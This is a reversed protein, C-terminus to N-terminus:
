NEINIKEREGGISKRTLCDTKLVEHVQGQELFGRLRYSNKQAWCGLTPRPKKLVNIYNNDTKPM